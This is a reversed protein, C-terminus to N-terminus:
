RLHHAEATPERLPLASPETRAFYGRSESDAAAAAAASDAAAAAAVAAVIEPGVQRAEAPGSLVVPQGAPAAAKPTRASRRAPVPAPIHRATRHALVAAGAPTAAAAAGAAVSRAVPAAAALVVGAAAPSDAIGPAAHFLTLRTLNEFAPRGTTNYIKRRAQLGQKCGKSEIRKRSRVFTWSQSQTTQGGLM